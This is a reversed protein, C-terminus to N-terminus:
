RRLVYKCIADVALKINHQSLLQEKFLIIVALLYLGWTLRRLERSLDDRVKRLERAVGTVQKASALPEILVAAFEVFTGASKIGGKTLREKLGDRQSQTLLTPQVVFADDDKDGEDTHVM